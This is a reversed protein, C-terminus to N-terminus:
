PSRLAPKGRNANDAISIISRAMLLRDEESTKGAIGKRNFFAQELRSLSHEDGYVALAEIGITRARASASTLAITELGTISRGNDIVLLLRMGAVVYVEGGSVSVASKLDKERERVAAIVKEANIGEASKALEYMAESDGRLAFNLLLSASQKTRIEALARAAAIRENMSDSKLLAGLPLALSPSKLRQASLATSLRVAEDSDTLLEKLLIEASKNSPKIYGAVRATENRVAAIDSKASKRLLGIGSYKGHNLLVVATLLRTTLTGSEPPTTVGLLELEQHEALFTLARVRMEENPGTYDNQIMKLLAPKDKGRGYLTEIAAYRVTPQPDMVAKLLIAETEPDPSRRLARLATARVETSSDTLALRTAQALARSDLSAALLEMAGTRIDPWESDLMANLEDQVRTIDLEHTGSPSQEERQLTVPTDIPACGVTSLCAIIILWLGSKSQISSIM